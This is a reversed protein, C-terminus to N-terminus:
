RTGRGGWGRRPVSMLCVNKKPDSTKTKNSFLLPKVASLKAARLLAMLMIKELLRKLKSSRLKLLTLSGHNKHTKIMCAAIILIM